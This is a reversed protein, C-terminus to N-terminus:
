FPASATSLGIAWGVFLSVPLAGLATITVAMLMVFGEGRRGRMIRALQGVVFAALCWVAAVAMAVVIVAADMSGVTVNRGDIARGLAQATVALVVGALLTLEPWFRRFRKARSSTALVRTSEM